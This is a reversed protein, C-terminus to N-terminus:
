VIRAFTVSPKPRAPAALVATASVYEEFPTGGGVLAEAPNAVAVEITPLETAETPSLPLPIMVIVYLAEPRPPLGVASPFSTPKFGDNVAPPTVQSQEAALVMVFM